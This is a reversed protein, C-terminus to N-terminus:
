RPDAAERATAWGRAQRWDLYEQGPMPRAFYFGQLLDCGLERLIERQGATEVGEAVVELDLAHGVDIMCAMLRQARNDDELDRVFARDIKLGTLPLTRLYEFSSYGTGFDDLSVQFGCRRLQEIAEGAAVPDRVIAGETIEIEIRGAPLGGYAAMRAISAILNQDILDRATINISIRQRSQKVFGFASQAVFRTM